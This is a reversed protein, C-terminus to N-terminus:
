GIYKVEKEGGEKFEYVLPHEESVIALIGETHVRGSRVGGSIAKHWLTASPDLSAYYQRGYGKITTKTHAVAWVLKMKAATCESKELVIYERREIEETLTVDREETNIDVTKEVLHTAATYRLKKVLHKSEMVRIDVIEGVTFQKDAFIDVRGTWSAGYVSGKIGIKYCPFDTGADTKFEKWEGPLSDILVGEFRHLEVREQVISPRKQRRDACSPCLSPANDYKDHAFFVFVNGCDKCVYVNDIKLSEIAEASNDSTKLYEVLKM